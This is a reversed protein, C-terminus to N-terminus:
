QNRVIPAGNIEYWVLHNGKSPTFGNVSWTTKALESAIISGTQVIALSNIYDKGFIVMAFKGEVSKANGNVTFKQLNGTRDFCQLFYIKNKVNRTDITEDADFYIRGNIFPDKSVTPTKGNEAYVPVEDTKGNSYHV